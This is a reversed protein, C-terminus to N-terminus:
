FWRLWSQIGTEEYHFDELDMYYKNASELRTGFFFRLIVGHGNFDRISEIIVLMMYM